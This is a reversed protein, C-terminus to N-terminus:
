AAGRGEAWPFLRKHLLYFIRDTCLGLLGIVIIGVFIVDTQMFRQAKLIAYGLGNNAAVLEAVVLYTWAWGLTLRLTHVLDPLLAPFLVKLVVDSRRAGLTYSVNLLDQSVGRTHDAVMLIMQFFTGVFIILIKAFEGVGAWVMILPIFATAPMYRVFETCPVIWAEAIKFTGALVGLPIGLVAALLFGATIRYVSIGVNKWLVPNTLMQILTDLVEGPSPLFIPSVWQSMSLVQWAILVFVFSAGTIALYTKTGIPKRIQFLGRLKEM